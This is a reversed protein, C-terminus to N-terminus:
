AELREKINLAASRWRVIDFCPNELRTFVRRILLQLRNCAKLFLQLRKQKSSIFEVIPKSDQLVLMLRALAYTEFRM